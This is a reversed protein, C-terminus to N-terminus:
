ANALEGLARVIREPTFPAAELRAGCADRIANALAPIACPLSTQAMAKSGFPGPGDANEIM